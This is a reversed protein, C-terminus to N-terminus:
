DLYPLTRLTKGEWLYPAEDINNTVKAKGFAWVTCRSGDPTPRMFIPKGWADRLDDRSLNRYGANQAARLFSEHDVAAPRLQECIQGVVVVRTITSKRRADNIEGYAWWGVGLAAVVGLTVVIRRMTLERGVTENTDM